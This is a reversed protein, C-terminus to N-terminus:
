TIRPGNENVNAPIKGDHEAIISKMEDIYPHPYVIVM